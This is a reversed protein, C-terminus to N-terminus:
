CVLRLHSLAARTRWWLERREKQWHEFVIEETGPSADSDDPQSPILIGGVVSSNSFFSIVRLLAMAEFTFPSADSCAATLDAIKTAPLCGWLETGAGENASDEGMGFPASSGPVGCPCLIAPVCENLRLASLGQTRLVLLVSALSVWLTTM